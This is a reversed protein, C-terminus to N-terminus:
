KIGHTMLSQRTKNLFKTFLGTSYFETQYCTKILYNQLFDTKHDNLETLRHSLKYLYPLFSYSHVPLIFLM